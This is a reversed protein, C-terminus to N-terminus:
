PRAPQSPVFELWWAIVGPNDAFVPLLRSVVTEFPLVDDGPDGPVANLGREPFGSTHNQASQRCDLLEFSRGTGFPRRHSRRRASQGAQPVVLGGFASSM